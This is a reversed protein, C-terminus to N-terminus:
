ILKGWLSKSPLHCGHMMESIVRTKRSVHGKQHETQFDACAQYPIYFPGPCRGKSLEM